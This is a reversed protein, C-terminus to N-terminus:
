RFWYKYLPSEKNLYKKLKSKKLQVDHCGVSRPGIEYLEYYYVLGKPTVDFCSNPIVQKWDIEKEVGEMLGLESPNKLMRKLETRLLKAVEHFTADYNESKFIDKETLLHGTKRDFVFYKTYQVQSPGGTYEIKRGRFSLLEDSVTYPVVTVEYEWWFDPQWDKLTYGESIIYNYFSEYDPFESRLSDCFDRITEETSKGRYYPYLMYDLITDKIRNFATQEDTNLYNAKPLDIDIDFRVGLTDTTKELPDEKYKYSIFSLSCNQKSCAGAILALLFFCILNNKKM